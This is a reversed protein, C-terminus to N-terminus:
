ARNCRAACPIRGNLVYTKLLRRHCMAIMVREGPHLFPAARCLVILREVFPEVLRLLDDGVEPMARQPVVGFADEHELRNKPGVIVIEVPRTTGTRSIPSCCTRSSRPKMGHKASQTRQMRGSGQIPRAWGIWRLTSGNARPACSSRAPAGVSPPSPWAASRQFLRREGRRVTPLLSPDARAQYRSAEAQSSQCSHTKSSKSAIQAIRPTRRFVRDTRRNPPPVRCFGQMQNEPKADCPSPADKSPAKPKAVPAGLAIRACAGSSLSSCRM